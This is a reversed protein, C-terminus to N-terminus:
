HSTSATRSEFVSQPLTFDIEYRIESDGRYICATQKVDAPPLGLITTYAAAVGTRLMATAPNGITKLKLLEKMEPNPKAAITCKEADLSVIKYIFNQEFHKPVIEESMKLYLEAVNKCDELDHKVWSPNTSLFSQLGIQNFLNKNMRYRYLYDCIDSTFLFNIGSNLDSFIADNVQFKRLIQQREKWGFMSEVFNLICAPVRRKSLSAMAYREPLYNQNGFYHHALASCDIKGTAILEFGINLQEALLSVKTIPLDSQTTRLKEFERDTLQLMESLQHDSLQLTTGIREIVDWIKPLKTTESIHNFDLSM